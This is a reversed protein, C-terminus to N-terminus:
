ADQLLLRDSIGIKKHLAIMFGSMVTIIGLGGLQILCLIVVQGFVSWTSVTPLTVLGTVCTATTATFLADAYSVSKEDASSIPLVLLLSGVLIVALFSIMILQTTSLIIRNKRMFRM